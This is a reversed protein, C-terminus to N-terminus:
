LKAELKSLREELDSQRHDLKEFEAILQEIVKLLHNAISGFKKTM